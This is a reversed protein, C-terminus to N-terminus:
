VSNIRRSSPNINEPMSKKKSVKQCVFQKLVVELGGIVHTGFWHAKDAEDESSYKVLAM